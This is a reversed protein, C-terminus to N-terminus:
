YKPPSHQRLKVGAEEFVRASAADMSYGFNYVVEKVGTQVIKVSCRLCPCTNCYLVAGDGVRERGAELLANEEAHLCLCEDLAEGSRALGNCRACGGENCNTLGRPTGNYGTALIRNKRVLIAGVRRKMCNSRQAALESLTMFYSDWGPRLREQDLINIDELHNHLGEITEFHNIVSTTQRSWRVMVPADVSVLLFFPRKSFPELTTRDQLSLTVYNSRWNRTAFDLLDAASPFSLTQGGLSAQTFGKSLLYKLITKKGSCSTGIISIFM